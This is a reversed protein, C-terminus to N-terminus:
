ITLQVAARIRSHENRGSCTEIRQPNGRHSGHDLHSHHWSRYSEADTWCTALHIEEPRDPPSMVEMRVFGAARDVLHPRNRFVAKVEAVMGNSIVFKSMAVFQADDSGTLAARPNGCCNM